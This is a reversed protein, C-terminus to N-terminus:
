IINIGFNTGKKILLSKTYSQINILKKTIWLKQSILL